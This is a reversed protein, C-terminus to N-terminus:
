KVQYMGNNKMYNFIQEGHKQEDKQIHQLAQRVEPSVAEFIAMDYNGSTHKETALLDSCLVADGENSMAGQYSSQQAPQVPQASASPQGQGPNPVQGQLMQNVTNYHQQEENALNTFLQKLEPCQTQQAYNNYKKVCVEELNKQDELLLREKQSLQLALFVVEM